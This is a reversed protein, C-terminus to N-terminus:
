LAQFKPLVNIVLKLMKEHYFSFFLFLCSNFHLFSQQNCMGQFTISQKLLTLPYRKKYIREKCLIMQIMLDEYSNKHRLLDEMTEWEKIFGYCELPDLVIKPLGNEKRMHTTEQMKDVVEAFDSDEPLRYKLLFYSLLTEHAEIMIETPYNHSELLSTVKLDAETVSMAALHLETLNSDDTINMPSGAALLLDVVKNQHKECAYHLATRGYADKLQVDANHRLLLEVLEILDGDFFPTSVAAHLATQGISNTQNIKAGAKLLLETKSLIGKCTTIMLPFVTDNRSFGRDSPSCYEHSHGIYNPDAGRELLLNVADSYFFLLVM